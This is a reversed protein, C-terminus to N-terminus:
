FVNQTHGQNHKRISEPDRKPLDTQNEKLLHFVFCYFSMSLWPCCCPCCSLPILGACYKKTNNASLFYYTHM